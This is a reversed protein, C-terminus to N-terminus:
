SISVAEFPSLDIEILYVRSKWHDVSIPILGGHAEIRFPARWDAKAIDHPTMCGDNSVFVHMM